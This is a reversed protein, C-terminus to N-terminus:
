LDCIVSFGYSLLWVFDLDQQWHSVIGPSYSISFYLIFIL